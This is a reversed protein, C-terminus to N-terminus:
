SNSTHRTPRGSGADPYGDGCHRAQGRSGPFGGGFGFNCNRRLGNRTGFEIGRVASGRIIPPRRRDRVRWHLRLLSFHTLMSYVTVVYFSSSMSHLSQLSGLDTPLFPVHTTNTKLAPDIYRLTLVLPLHFCLGRRDYNHRESRM